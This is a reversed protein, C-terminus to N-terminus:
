GRRTPAKKTHAHVAERIMQDLDDEGFPELLGPNSESEALRGLIERQQAGEVDPIFEHRHADFWRVFNKRESASMAEITAELQEVSM